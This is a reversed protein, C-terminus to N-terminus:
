GEAEAEERPALGPGKDQEESIEFESGYRESGLSSREMRFDGFVKNASSSRRHGDRVKPYQRM